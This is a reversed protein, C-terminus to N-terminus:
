WNLGLGRRGEWVSCGHCSARAFLRESQVQKGGCEKVRVLKSGLEIAGICIM